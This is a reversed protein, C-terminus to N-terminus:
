SPGTASPKDPPRPVWTSAPEVVAAPNRQVRLPLPTDAQWTLGAATSNAQALQTNANSALRLIDNAFPQPIPGRAVIEEVKTTLEGVTSTLGGLQDMLTAHTQETTQQRRIRVFQGTFYSVFFFAAGFNAVFAGAWSWEARLPWARLIAWILGLVFALWFESIFRRLVAM